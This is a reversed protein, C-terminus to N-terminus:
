GVHIVDFLPVRGEEKEEKQSHRFYVCLLKWLEEEQREVQEQISPRGEEEEELWGVVVGVAEELWDIVRM